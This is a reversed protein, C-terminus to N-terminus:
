NNEQVEDRQIWNTVVIKRMDALKRRGEKWENLVCKNAALCYGTILYQLKTTSLAHVTKKGNL